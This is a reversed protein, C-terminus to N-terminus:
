RAVKEYAKEHAIRIRKNLNAYEKSYVNTTCALAQLHNRLALYDKSTM